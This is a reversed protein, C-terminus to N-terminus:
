ENGQLVLPLNGEGERLPKDHSVAIRIRIEAHSYGM